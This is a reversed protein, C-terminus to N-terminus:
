VNPPNVVIDTEATWNPDFMFGKVLFSFIKILSVLITESGAAPLTLGASVSM